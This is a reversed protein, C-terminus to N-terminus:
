CGAPAPIPDLGANGLLTIGSGSLTAAGCVANNLLVADSGSITLAGDVESFSMGFDSGPVTLDGTITAGRIRNGSGSVEINGDLTVTGGRMGEGFLTVNSGAFVLDGAYSGAHLFVIRNSGALADNVESLPMGPEIEVVTGGFAHEIDAMIATPDAAADDWAIALERLDGTGITFVETGSAGIDLTDEGAAVPALVAVRNADTDVSPGGRVDVATGAGLTGPAPVATQNATNIVPNLLVVFATEGYPVDTPPSTSDGCAGASVLLGIGLSLSRVRTVSRM